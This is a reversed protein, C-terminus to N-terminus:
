RTCVEHRRLGNEIIPILPLQYDDEALDSDMSDDTQSSDADEDTFRFNQNKLIKTINM